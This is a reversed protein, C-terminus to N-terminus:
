LELLFEQFRNWWRFIIITNVITLIFILFLIIKTIDSTQNTEINKQKIDDVKKDMDNYVAEQIEGALKVMNEGAKFSSNALEDKQEWTEATVVLRVTKEMKKVIISMNIIKDKLEQSKVMNMAKDLEIKLRGIQASVASIDKDYEAIYRMLGLEAELSYANINETSKIIPQYSEIIININKQISKLSNQVIFISTFSIICVGFMFSIIIYFGKKLQKGPTKDAM